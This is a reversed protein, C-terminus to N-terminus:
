GNNTHDKPKLSNTLSDEEIDNKRTCVRQWLDDDVLERIAQKWAKVAIEKDSSAAVNLAKIRAGLAALRTAHQLLGARIQRIAFQDGDRKAVALRNDDQAKRALVQQREANAEDLSMHSVDPQDAEGAAFVGGTVQPRDVAYRRQLNRSAIKYM